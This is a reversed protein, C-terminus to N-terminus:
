FGSLDCYAKQSADEEAESELTAIMDTILGVSRSLHLNFLFIWVRFIGVGLKQKNRNFGCVPNPMKTINAQARFGKCSKGIQILSCILM